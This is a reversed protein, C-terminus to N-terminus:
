AHSFETRTPSIAAKRGAYSQRLLKLCSGPIKAPEKWSEAMGPDRCVDIVPNFNWNVGDVAAQEAAIRACERILDFDGSCSMGLPIPFTPMKYGHIIDAGFLLPMGHPSHYVALEQYRRIRESSTIGFLGGVQGLRIKEEIGRNITPGTREEDGPTLLNLQGVKHEVTM